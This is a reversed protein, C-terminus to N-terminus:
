QHHEMSIIGCGETFYIRGNAIPVGSRGGWSKGSSGILGNGSAHYMLDSNWGGGDGAQEGHQVDYANSTALDICKTGRFNQRWFVIGGGVTQGFGNDTETNTKSSADVTYSGLPEADGTALNISRLDISYNTGFAGPACITPYKTKFYTIVRGTTDCVPPEPPTGCGEFPACPVIFPETM